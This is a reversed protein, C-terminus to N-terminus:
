VWKRMKCISVGGETPCLLICVVFVENAHEVKFRFMFGKKTVSGTAVIIGVCIPNSICICIVMVDFIEVDMHIEQLSVELSWQTHSDLICRYKCMSCCDRVTYLQSHSSVSPM